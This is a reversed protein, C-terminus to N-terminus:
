WVQGCASNRSRCPVLGSCCTLSRWFKWSWDHFEGCKASELVRILFDRPFLSEMEAWERVGGRDMVGALTREPNGSLEDPRKWWFLFIMRELFVKRGEDLDTM